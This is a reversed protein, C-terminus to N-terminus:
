LPQHVGVRTGLAKDTGVQGDVLLFVPEDVDERTLVTSM